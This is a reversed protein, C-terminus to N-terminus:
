RPGGTPASWPEGASPPQFPSPLPQTIDESSYPGNGNPGGGHPTDYVHTTDYLPTATDEFGTTSPLVTEYSVTPPPGSPGAPPEEYAARFAEAP